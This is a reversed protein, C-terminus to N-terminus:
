LVMRLEGILKKTTIKLLHYNELVGFMFHLVIGTFRCGMRRRCKRLVLDLLFKESSCNEGHVFHALRKEEEAEEGSFPFHLFSEM